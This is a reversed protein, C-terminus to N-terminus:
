WFMGIMSSAIIPVVGVLMFAPLFCVMLPYVTTIGVTRARQQAQAAIEQRAEAAHRQLIDLLATGSSVSRALDRMVPGVVLRDASARWAEVDSAGVDIRQRVVLLEQAVPGDLVAIVDTVAARLPLGAELCAGLLDLAQPLGMLLQERERRRSAPELYGLGVMVALALGVAVPAAALGLLLVAVFGVGAGLWARQRRPMAGPKGQVIHLWRPLPRPGDLRHLVHEPVLWWLTLAACGAAVGAWM